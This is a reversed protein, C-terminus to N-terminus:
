KLVPTETFFQIWLKTIKIRKHQPLCKFQFLKFLVFCTRLAEDSFQCM